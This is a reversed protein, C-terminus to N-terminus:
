EVTEVTLDLRMGDSNRNGVAFEGRTEFTHSFTENPAIDENINLAAITVNHTEPDRNEFVVTTGEEVHLSNPNFRYQYLVITRDEESGQPTVPQDPVTDTTGCGIIGFSTVLAIMLVCFLRPHFM